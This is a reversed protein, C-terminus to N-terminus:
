GPRWKMGRRLERLADKYADGNGASQLFPQEHLFEFTALIQHFLKPYDRKLAAPSAVGCVYRVVVSECGDTRCSVCPWHRCGNAPCLYDGRGSLTLKYNEPDVNVPEDDGCVDYSIMLPPTEGGFLTEIEQKADVKWKAAGAVSADAAFKTWDAATWVARWDLWIRTQMGGSGQPFRSLRFERVQPVLAFKLDTEVDEAAAAVLTRMHENVCDADARLQGAIADDDVAIM